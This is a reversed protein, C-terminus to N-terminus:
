DKIFQISDKKLIIKDYGLMDCLTEKKIANNFKPMSYECDEIAYLINSNSILDMIHDKLKTLEKYSSPDMKPANIIKFDVTFYSFDKLDYNMNQEMFLVIKKGDIKIPFNYSYVCKFSIYNQSIEWSIQYMNIGNDYSVVTNILYGFEDFNLELNTLPNNSSSKINLVNIESALKDYGADYLKIKLDNVNTSSIPYTLDLDSEQMSLIETQELASKINPIISNVLYFIANIGVVAFIIFFILIKKRCGKKKQTNDNYYNDKKKFRFFKM